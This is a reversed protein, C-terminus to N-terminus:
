CSVGEKLCFPGLASARTDLVAETMHPGRILVNENGKSKEFSCSHFPGFVTNSELHILLTDVEKFNVLACGAVTDLDLHSYQKLVTSSELHIFTKGSGNIGVVCGPITCAKFSTYAMFEKGGELHILVKTGNSKTNIVCGPINKDVSM